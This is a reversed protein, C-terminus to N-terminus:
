RPELTTTAGTTAGLGLTKAKDLLAAGVFDMNQPSAKALLARAISPDLMAQTVLERVDNEPIRYLWQLPRSLTLMLPNSSARGGFLAGVVNAVSLNQVTNSGAAKGAQSVTALDLDNGIATLVKAQDPTVVNGLEDLKNTVAQKWKAQSIVPNGQADPAAMQTRKQIDQLAEMQNIPQSEQAFTQRAQQYAPSANDLLDLFKNKTEIMARQQSRGMGSQPATDVLDDFALKIYHLFQTNNLTQAQAPIGAENALQSAGNM